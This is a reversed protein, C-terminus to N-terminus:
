SSKKQEGNLMLLRYKSKQAEKRVERALLYENWYFNCFLVFFFGAIGMNVYYARYSVQCGYWPRSIMYSLVLIFQILQTITIYKKFKLHITVEDGLASVGYYTYMIVHVFSNALPFFTNYGGPESRLMCFMCLPVSSHHILHLRTLQRDKKRLVFFVTDSLEIFKSVYFWWTFEALKYANADKTIELPQCSIELGSFWRIRAFGLFIYFNMIVLMINYPVILWRLDYPKRTAMFRPGIFNVFVVYICIIICNLRDNRVLPWQMIVPDTYKILFDDYIDALDQVFNHDSRICCNVPNTGEM